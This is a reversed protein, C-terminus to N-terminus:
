FFSRSASAVVYGGLRKIPTRKDEKRFREEYDISGDDNVSNRLFHVNNLWTTLLTRSQPKEELYGFRNTCKFLYSTYRIYHDVRVKKKHVFRCYQYQYLGTDSNYIPSLHAGNYSVYLSMDSVRFYGTAKHFSVRIGADDPYDQPVLKVRLQNELFLSMIYSFLSSSEILYYDGFYRKYIPLLNNLIIYLWPELSGIKNNHPAKFSYPRVDSGRFYDGGCSERFYDDMGYFSKEKNVSFGLWECVEIFLPCQTTPLICDDGYVSVKSMDKHSVLTSTPKGSLHVVACGIVWFILTEVPFTTANGMTSFMQLVHNVGHIEMEPTRYNDLYRFWSSPIVRKVLEFSVCDSAFSFDITGNVHSMSSERALRKHKEPLSRVDLDFDKLRAYMIDMIGEQFYMSATPEVAIMRRKSSTKDVTTAHSAAVIDYLHGMPDNGNLAQIAERLPKNLSTHIEFARASKETASIPYRFKAELSTDVFPVGISSGTSNRCYQDFESVPFHWLVQMALKSATDLVQELTFCNTASVFTKGLFWSYREQFFINIAAMRENNAIFSDFAAQELPKANYDASRQYRKLTDAIQRDRLIRRSDLSADRDFCNSAEMDCRLASAIATAITDPDFLKQKKQGYHVRKRKM